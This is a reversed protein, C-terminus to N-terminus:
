KVNECLIETTQGLSLYGTGYKGGVYDQKFDAYQLLTCKGDKEKIAATYAKTRSLIIGTIQNRQVTWDKSLINVKIVTRGNAFKSALLAKKIQSELDPDSVAAAAMKTDAIRGAKVSAAHKKANEASGLMSLVDEAMQKAELISESSPYVELFAKWKNYIWKLQYYNYVAYEVGESKDYNNKTSVIRTQDPGSVEWYGEIKSLKSEDNAKLNTKCFDKIAEIQEDVKKQLESFEQDTKSNKFNEPTWMLFKELDQESSRSANLDKENAEKSVSDETRYKLVEAEMSSVDYTPDTKKISAIKKEADMIAEEYGMSGPKMKQLREIAKNYFKLNSQGSTSLQQATINLAALMLVIFINRMLM